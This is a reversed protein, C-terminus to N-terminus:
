VSSRATTPSSPNHALVRPFEEVTQHTHKLALFAQLHLWSSWPKHSHAPLTKGATRAPAARHPPPSRAPATEPRTRSEGSKDAASPTPCETRRSRSSAM